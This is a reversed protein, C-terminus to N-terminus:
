FPNKIAKCREWLLAFLRANPTEADIPTTAANLVLAHPTKPVTRYLMYDRSDTRNHVFVGFYLCNLASKSGDTDVARLANELELDIEVSQDLFRYQFPPLAGAEARSLQGFREVQAMVVQRVDHCAGVNGCECLNFIRRVSIGRRLADETADLYEDTKFDANEYLLPNALSLFSDGVKMSRMQAALIRRNLTYSNPAEYRIFADNVHPYRMTQLLATMSGAPKVGYEHTAWTIFSVFHSLDRELSGDPRAEFARLEHVKRILQIVEANFPKYSDEPLLRRLWHQIALDPNDHQQMSLSVHEVEQMQEELRKQARFRGTGLAIFDLAVGVVAAVLCAAGVEYLLDAGLEQLSRTKWRSMECAVIGVIVLM